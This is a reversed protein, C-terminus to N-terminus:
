DPFFPTQPFGPLIWVRSCRQHGPNDDNELRAATDDRLKPELSGLIHACGEADFSAKVGHARCSDIIRECRTVLAQELCAADFAERVCAQYARFCAGMDEGVPLKEICRRYVARSRKRFPAPADGTLEPLCGAPYAAANCTVGDLSPCAVEPGEENCGGGRPPGPGRGPPTTASAEGRPPVVTPAVVVEPKWEACAAGVIAVVV